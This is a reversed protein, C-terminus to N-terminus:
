GGEHPRVRELWDAFDIDTIVSDCTAYITDPQITSAIGRWYSLRGEILLRQERESARVDQLSDQWEDWRRLAYLALTTDQRLSRIRQLYTTTDSALKEIEGDRNEIKTHLSGLYLLLGLLLATIGLAIYRNM